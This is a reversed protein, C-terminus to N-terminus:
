VGSPVTGRGAGVAPPTHQAVWTGAAVALAVPWDIAGLAGMTVVGGYFALKELTGGPSRAGPVPSAAASARQPGSLTATVFPLRLTLTLPTAPATTPPTPKGTEEPPSTAPITTSGETPATTPAETPATRATRGRKSETM